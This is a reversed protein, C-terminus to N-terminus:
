TRLKRGLKLLLPWGVLILVSASCVCFLLLLSRKLRRIYGKKEPISIKSQIPGKEGDDYVEDSGKGERRKYDGKPTCLPFLFALCSYGIHYSLAERDAVLVFAMFFPAQSFTTVKCFMWGEENEEEM